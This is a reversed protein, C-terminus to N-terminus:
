KAMRNTIKIFIHNIIAKFMINTGKNNDCPINKVLLKNFENNNNNHVNCHLINKTQNITPYQHFTHANGEM